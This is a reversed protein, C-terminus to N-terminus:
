AYFEGASDVMDGGAAVRSRLDKFLVIVALQEQLDKALDDRSEVPQTM